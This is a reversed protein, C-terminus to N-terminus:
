TGFDITDTDALALYVGLGVVWHAVAVMFVLPWSHFHGLIFGTVANGYIGPLTAITNSVGCLLGANEPSVDVMNAWYGSHSATNAGLGVCLLVVAVPLSAVDCLAIVSLVVSPVVFALTQSLKRM